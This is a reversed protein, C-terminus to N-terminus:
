FSGNITENKDRLQYRQVTHAKTTPDQTMCSTMTSMISQRDAEDTTDFSDPKYGMVELVQIIAHITTCYFKEEDKNM